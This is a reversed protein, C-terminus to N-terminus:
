TPQRSRAPRLRLVGSREAPSGLSYDAGYTPFPVEREWFTMPGQGLCTWFALSGNEVDYLRYSSAGPGLGGATVQLCHPTLQLASSVHVHGCAYVAIEPRSAILSRLTPGTGPLFQEWGFGALIGGERVTQLPYHGTLLVPGSGADLVAELRTLAGDPDGERMAVTVVRIPGLDVATVPEAAGFVTGFNTGGLPVDEYPETEPFHEGREANAGLDHNGPLVVYPLGISEIWERALRLPAPDGGGYTTLDGSVIMLDAGTRRLASVERELCDNVTVYMRPPETEIHLDSIHLIRV